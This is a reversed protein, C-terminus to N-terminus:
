RKTLMIQVQMKTPSSQKRVTVSGKVLVYADSYDCWNSKLVSTKFKTQSISNNTGLSDGNIEVWDKKRFKSSQNPTNNLM